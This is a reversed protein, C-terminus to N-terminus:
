EANAEEDGDTNRSLFGLMSALLLLGHIDDSRGGLEVVDDAAPTPKGGDNTGPTPINGDADDANDEDDDHTAFLSKTPFRGFSTVFYFVCYEPKKKTSHQNLLEAFTTTNEFDFDQRTL